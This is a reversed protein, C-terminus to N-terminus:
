CNNSSNELILMNKPLVILKKKGDNEGIFQVIEKGLKEILKRDFVIQNQWYIATIYEEKLTGRKGGCEETQVFFGLERVLDVLFQLTEIFVNTNKRREATKGSVGNAIDLSVRQICRERIHRGVDIDENDNWMKEITMFQEFVTARKNPFRLSINYHNNILFLLVMSEYVQNNRVEIFRMQRQPFDRLLSSM